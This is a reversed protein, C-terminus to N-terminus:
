KKAVIGYLKRRLFIGKETKNDRVYADFLDKEILNRHEFRANNIESFDDLIPAKFLLAMLDEETEYYENEFIEIKEIQTFGAAVIDQYDKDSIAIEDNYGQGRGFLEKLEWCDERDVGEIVLVGGPKLVDYIQKANIVTHRASVLDFLNNPFTMNLNDMWAFKVRKNANEPCRLNENATKLMEESYDTAILMGVEPYSTLAEEGGGTGIDLCLSTQNTHAQIQAYMEWDTEREVHYKIYSFDWDGIKEYYNLENESM